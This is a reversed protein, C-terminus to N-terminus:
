EPVRVIILGTENEAAFPSCYFENVVAAIEGDIFVIPITDRCWPPINKEQFIKKLVQSKNRNKPKCKEGGQRLKIQIDESSFCSSKIGDNESSMLELVGYGPIKVREGQRWNSIKLSFNQPIKERNKDLLYIKNKYRRLEVNAWSVIPSADIRAAIAAHIQTLLNKSPPSYGEVSLWHRVLNNQRSISLEKLKNIDLCHAFSQTDDEKILLYDKEAIENLLESAQRINSSFRSLTERYSPWRKELVPLIQHRLYNRDFNIEDNTPDNIWNINNKRAYEEISKRSYILLPRILFSTSFQSIFRIGAAGDVGTGRLMQLFITEIQDDLHHGTLLVDDENLVSNFAEYRAKRAAAEPGEGQKAHANVFICEIPINLKECLSVCFLQWENANSQLQHNIHIAKLFFFHNSTNQATSNLFPLDTSEESSSSSFPLYSPLSSLLHLLVVSDIGGSLGVVFTLPTSPTVGSSQLLENLTQQMAEPTLETM